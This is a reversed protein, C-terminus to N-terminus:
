QQRHCYIPHRRGRDKALVLLQNGIVKYLLHYSTLLKATDISPILAFDKCKGNSYYDSLLSVSFLIKYKATM